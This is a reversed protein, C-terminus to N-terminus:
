YDDERQDVGAIWGGIRRGARERWSQWRWRARRWRSVKVPPTPTWGRARAEEETIAGSDLLMEISMPLYSTMRNVTIPTRDVEVNVGFRDNIQKTARKIEEAFQQAFWDSM